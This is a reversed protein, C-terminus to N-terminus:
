NNPKRRQAAEEKKLKRETKTLKRSPKALSSTTQRKMNEIEAMESANFEQISDDATSEEEIMVSPQSMLTCERELKVTERM